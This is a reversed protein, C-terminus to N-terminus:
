DTERYREAIYGGPCDIADNLSEFTLRISDLTVAESWNESDTACYTSMDDTDEPPHCYRYQLYVEYANPQGDDDNGNRNEYWRTAAYSLIGDAGLDTANVWGSSHTHYDRGVDADFAIKGAARIKVQFAYRPFDTALELLGKANAEIAYYNPRSGYAHFVCHRDGSPVTIAGTPETFSLYYDQEHGWGLPPLTCGPGLVGAPTCVDGTCGTVAVYKYKVNVHFLNWVSGGAMEYMPEDPLEFGYIDFARSVNQCPDQPIPFGADDVAGPGTYIIEKKPPPQIVQTTVSGRDAVTPVEERTIEVSHIWLLEPDGFQNNLPHEIEANWRMTPAIRVGAEPPSPPMNVYLVKGVSPKKRADDIHPFLDTTSGIDEYRTFYDEEAISVGDFRIDDLSLIIPADIPTFIPTRILGTSGAVYEDREGDSGVTDVYTRLALALNPWTMGGPLTHQGGMYEKFSAAEDVNLQANTTPDQLLLRRSDLSLPVEYFGDVPPDLNVSLVVRSDDPDPTYLNAILDSDNDPNVGLLELEMRSFAPSGSLEECHPFRLNLEMRSYIEPNTGDMDDYPDAPDNVYDYIKREVVTYETKESLLECRIPETAAWDIEAENVQRRIRQVDTCTLRNLRAAHWDKTTGSADFEYTNGFRNLTEPDNCGRDEQGAPYPPPPGGAEAATLPVCINYRYDNRRVRGNYSMLTGAGAWHDLGIAHGFEHLITSRLAARGARGTIAGRALDEDITINRGTTRGGADTLGKIGIDFERGGCNPGETEPDEGETTICELTFRDTWGGDPDRNIAEQWVRVAWLVDDRFDDFNYCNAGSPDSPLTPDGCPVLGAHEEIFFDRVSNKFRLDVGGERIIRGTKNAATRTTASDFPDGGCHVEENSDRVFGFGDLTQCMDDLAGDVLPEYRFIPFWEDEIPDYRYRVNLDTFLSKTCFHNSATVLYGGEIRNNIRDIWLDGYAESPIASFDPEIEVGPDADDLLADVRDLEADRIERHAPTLRPVDPLWLRYAPSWTFLDLSDFDFGEVEDPLSKLLEEFMPHTEPVLDTVCAHIRAQLSAVGELEEANLDTLCEVLKPVSPDMAKLDPIMRPPIRPMPAPLGIKIPRALKLGDPRLDYAIGVRAMLNRFVPDVSRHSGKDEATDYLPDPQWDKTGRPRDGLDMERVRVVTPKSVTNTPFDVWLEHAHSRFRSPVELRAPAGASLARPATTTGWVHAIGGTLAAGKLLTPATLPGTLWDRASLDFRIAAVDNKCVPVQGELAALRLGQKDRGFVEPVTVATSTVGQILHASDIFLRLGVIFGSPLHNLEPFPLRKDAIGLGLSLMRDAPDIHYVRVEGDGTPLRHIRSPSRVSEPDPVGRKPPTPKILHKLYVQDDCGQETPIFDVELRGIDLELRDFQSWGNEPTLRYALRVDATGETKSLDAQYFKMGGFLGGVYRQCGPVVLLCVAFLILLGPIKSNSRSPLHDNFGEM